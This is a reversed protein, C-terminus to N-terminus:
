QYTHNKAFYVFGKWVFFQFMFQHFIIINKNKNENSKSYRKEGLPFLLTLHSVFFQHATIWVKLLPLLMWFNQEFFASNFKWQIFRVLFDTISNCEKKERYENFSFYNFLFDVSKSNIRQMNLTCWAKIWLFVLLATKRINGFNERERTSTKVFFLTLNATFLPSFFSKEGCLARM